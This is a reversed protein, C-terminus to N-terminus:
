SLIAKQFFILPEVTRLNLWYLKLNFMDNKFQNQFIKINAFLMNYVAFHTNWGFFLILGVGAFVSWYVLFWMSNNQMDTWQKCVSSLHGKFCLRVDGVYLFIFLCIIHYHRSNVPQSFLLTQYHTRIYAADNRKIGGGRGVKTM